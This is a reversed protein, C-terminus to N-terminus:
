RFWGRLGELESQMQFSYPATLVNVAFWLVSVSLLMGTMRSRGAIVRLVVAVLFPGIATALRAYPGLADLISFPSM